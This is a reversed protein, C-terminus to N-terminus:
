KQMIFHMLRANNADTVWVNGQADVAVAAALNFGDPGTGYDGWAKLFNGQNDFQLVRNAEPDTAFVNGNADV